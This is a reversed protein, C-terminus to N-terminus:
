VKKYWGNKLFEGFSIDCDLRLFALYRARSRSVKPPKPSHEEIYAAGERTVSFVHDGGSIPTPNRKTMLGTAFAQECLDWTDCGPSTCFHNRYDDTRGPMRQGFEDRGLAHQLVHLLTTM